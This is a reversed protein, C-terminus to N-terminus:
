KERDKGIDEVKKKRENFCCAFVSRVFPFSVGDQDDDAGDNVQFVFCYAKLKKKINKEVALM